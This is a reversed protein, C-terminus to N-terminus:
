LGLERDQERMREQHARYHVMDLSGSEIGREHAEKAVELHQHEPTRELVMDVAQDRQRQLQQVDHQHEQRTQVLTEEALEARRRWADRQQYLGQIQPRVRTWMSKATELRSAEKLPPAEGPVMAELRHEVEKVQEQVIGPVRWGDIGKTYQTRRVAKVWESNSVVGLPELAQAYTRQMERLKHAGNFYVKYSLHGQHDAPIVAAHIHPRAEDMHLVAYALQGPCEQQLWQMTAQTWGDVAAADDPNLEQPLTCILSAAVNADKRIKRGTDPQRQPLADLATEDGFLVRNLRVRDPDVQAPLAEPEYRRFDHRLMGAVDARKRPRLNMAAPM